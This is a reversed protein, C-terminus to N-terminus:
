ERGNRIATVNAEIRELSSLIHKNVEDQAAKHVAVDQLAGRASVYAAGASTLTAGMILVTASLWRTVGRHRNDCDRQIVNATCHDTSV